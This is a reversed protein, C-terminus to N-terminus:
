RGPMPKLYILLLLIIIVAAWSPITSLWGFASFLAFGILVAAVLAIPVLVMYALTRDIARDVRRWDLAKDLRRLIPPFSVFAMIPFFVAGAVIIWDGRDTLPVYFLVGIELASFFLILLFPGYRGKQRSKEAGPVPRVAYSARAYDARADEIKKELSLMSSGGKM